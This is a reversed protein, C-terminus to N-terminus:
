DGKKFTRTKKEEIITMRRSVTEEIEAIDQIPEPTIGREKPTTQMERLIKIIVEGKRSADVSKGAKVANDYDVCATILTGKLIADTAKYPDDAFDDIIRQGIGQYIRDDKLAQLYKSKEGTTITSVVQKLRGEVTTCGTSAGGHVKCKVGPTGKRPTENGSFSFCPYGINNIAGCIPYLHIPHIPNGEQDYDILGFELWKERIHAKQEDSLKALRGRKNLSFGNSLLHQLFDEPPMLAKEVNVVDTDDM